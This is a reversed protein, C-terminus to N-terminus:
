NTRRRPKRHTTARPAPVDDDVAQVEDAADGDGAHAGEAGAEGAAQMAAIVEEMRQREAATVEVLMVETRREADLALFTRVAHLLEVVDKRDLQVWDDGLQIELLKRSRALLTVDGATGGRLHAFRALRYPFFRSRRKNQFVQTTTM